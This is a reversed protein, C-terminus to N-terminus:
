LIAQLAHMTLEQRLRRQWTRQLAQQDKRRALNFLLNLDLDDIITLATALEAQLQRSVQVGGAAHKCVHCLSDQGLRAPRFGQVRQLRDAAWGGRVGSLPQLM